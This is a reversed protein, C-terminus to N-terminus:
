ETEGLELLRKKLSVMEEKITEIEAERYMERSLLDNIDVQLVECVKLVKFLGIEKVSNPKGVRAFYGLSVGIVKELQGLAIGQKKCLYKINKYLIENM